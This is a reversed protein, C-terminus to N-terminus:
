WRDAPRLHPGGPCRSLWASRATSWSRRPAAKKKSPPKEVGVWTTVQAYGARVETGPKTTTRSPKARRMLGQSAVRQRILTVRAKPSAHVSHNYWSLPPM